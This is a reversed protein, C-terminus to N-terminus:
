GRVNPYHGHILAVPKTGCKASLVVLVVIKEKRSLVFDVEDNGERWYFLDIHGSIAHNLLHAGVASEIWRGWLRREEKIERFSKATQASM